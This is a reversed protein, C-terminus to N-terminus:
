KKFTKSYELYKIKDVKIDNWIDFVLVKVRKDILKQIDNRYIQYDDYHTESLHNLKNQFYTM